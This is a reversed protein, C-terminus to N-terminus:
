LQILMQSTTIDAAIKLVLVAQVQQLLELLAEVIAIRQFNNAAL